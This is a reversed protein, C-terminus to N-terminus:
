LMKIQANEPLHNQSKVLYSLQLYMWLAARGKTKWGGVEDTVVKVMKGGNRGRHMERGRDRNWLEERRSRTNMWGWETGRWILPVERRQWRKTDSFLWLSSCGKVETCTHPWILNYNTFICFCVDYFFVDRWEIAIPNLSLINNHQQWKTSTYFKSKKNYKVLVIIPRKLFVIWHFCCTTSFRQIQGDAISNGKILYRYLQNIYM